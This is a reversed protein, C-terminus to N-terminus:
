QLTDLFRRYRETRRDDPFRAVFSRMNRIASASDGLTLYSEILMALGSATGTHGELARVVCAHDGTDLCARAEEIPSSAAETAEARAPSARHAGAETPATLRTAATNARRASSPRSARTSTTPAQAETPPEGANPEARRAPVGGRRAARALIAEADRTARAGLGDVTLVINAQQAAEAPTRALARRALDLHHDAFSSRARLAGEDQRLPSEAPLEEIAFYAADVDGAELAAMARAYTEAEQAGAEAGAKCAAAAADEPDISLAEAAFSRADDFRRAELAAQCSRAAEAARGLEEASPGPPEAEVEIATPTTAHPHLVEPPTSPASGGSAAIAAGAAIAVVIIVVAVMIPARSVETASLMAEVAHADEADFVYTEGEGVFRFRVQGLELIDGSRLESETVDGGNIRVGNASELDRVVFADGERVFSAHERSISRHNVWIDLEESRGIRMPEGSLAYEAGPAPATLMVLRAPPMPEPLDGVSIPVSDSTPEAHEEPGDKQIALEYDGIVVKDGASLAVEGEIRDGNIKVGNYSGLDEVIFAGNRRRFRAHRRSVNRETLRITNGEKRGITVEDRVLPVVTTKGEDDSIVLKFM